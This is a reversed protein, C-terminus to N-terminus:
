VPCAAIIMLGLRSLATMDLQQLLDDDIKRSLAPQDDLVIQAGMEALLRSQSQGSPRLNLDLENRFVSAPQVQNLRPEFLQAGQSELAPAKLRQVFQCLSQVASHVIPISM